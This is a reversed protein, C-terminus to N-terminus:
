AGGERLEEQSLVRAMDCIVARIERGRDPGAHHLAHLYEVLASTPQGLELFIHGSNLYPKYRVQYRRKKKAEALVKLAEERRGEQWLYLGLDNWANGFEADQKMAEKLEEKAEKLAGEYSLLYALYTRADATPYLALSMQYLSKIRERDIVGGERGGAELLREAEELKELAAHLQSNHKRANGYVEQYTVPSSPVSSFSSTSTTSSISSYSSSSSSPSPSSSSSPPGLPSLRSATPFQTFFSAPTLERTYPAMAVTLPHFVGGTESKTGGTDASSSLSDLPRQKRTRLRPLALAVVFPRMCPSIKDTSIVTIVVSFCAKAMPTADFWKGHRSM